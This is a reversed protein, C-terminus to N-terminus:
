SVIPNSLARSAFHWAAYTRQPEKRTSPSLYWTAGCCSWYLLQGPTDPDSGPDDVVAPNAVLNSDCDNTM